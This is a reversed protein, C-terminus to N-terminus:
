PVKPMSPKWAIGLLGGILGLLFGIFLGAFAGWVSLVSGTLVLAGWRHHREPKLYLLIGGALVLISWLIGVPGVGSPINYM